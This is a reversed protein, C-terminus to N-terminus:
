KINLPFLFFIIGIEIRGFYFSAIIRLLAFLLLPMGSFKRGMYMEVYLFYQMLTEAKLVLLSITSKHLLLEWAQINLGNPVKNTTVKQVEYNVHAFVNSFFLYLLIYSKLNLM